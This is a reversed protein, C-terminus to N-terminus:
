EHTTEGIQIKTVTLKAARRKRAIEGSEGLTVIAIWKV